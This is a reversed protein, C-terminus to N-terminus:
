KEQKLKALLTKDDLGVSKRWRAESRFLPVSVSVLSAVYGLTALRRELSGLQFDLARAEAALLLLSNITLAPLLLYGFGLVWLNRVRRYERTGVLYWASLGSSAAGLGVGLLIAVLVM